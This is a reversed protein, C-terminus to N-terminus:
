GKAPQMDEAWWPGTSMQADRPIPKFKLFQDDCKEESYLKHVPGPKPRGLIACLPLAYKPKRAPTCFARSMGTGPPNHAVM